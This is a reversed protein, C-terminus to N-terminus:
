RPVPCPIVSGGPTAGALAQMQRRLAEDAQEVRLWHLTAMPPAVSLLQQGRQQWQALAAQAAAEDPYRGLLLAASSTGVEGVVESDVGELRLAQQRSLLAAGDAFGGLLLRWEAEADAPLRRWSAPNRLTAALLAEISDLQEASFPGAQLCASAAAASAPAPAAAALVRVSEANFQAALRQPERQHHTSLGVHPQLWGQALAFFGLNALLLLAVLTRM